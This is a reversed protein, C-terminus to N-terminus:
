APSGQNLASFGRAYAADEFEFIVSGSEIESIGVSRGVTRRRQRQDATMGWTDIREKLWFGLLFVGIGVAAMALGGIVMVLDLSFIGGLMVMGGGLTPWLGFLFGLGVPVWGLLRQHEAEACQQCVPFELSTTTTQKGASRSHQARHTVGPAPTAGCGICVGPMSFTPLIPTRVKVSM